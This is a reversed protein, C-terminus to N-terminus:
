KLLKKSTIQWFLDQRQLVYQYKLSPFNNADNKAHKSSVIVFHNPNVQRVSEIFRPNIQENFSKGFAKNNQVLFPRNSTYRSIESVFFSDTGSGGYCGMDGHWLVYYTAQGFELDPEIAYVDKLFTELSDQGEFSTSCAVTESYKKVISLIKYKEELETEANLGM